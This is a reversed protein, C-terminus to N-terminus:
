EHPHPQPHCINLLGFLLVAALYNSVVVHENGRRRRRV